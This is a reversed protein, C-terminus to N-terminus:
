EDNEEINIRYSERETAADWVKELLPIIDEDGGGGDALIWDMRVDDELIRRITDYRVPNVARKEDEIKKKKAQEQALEEMFEQHELKHVLEMDQPTIHSGEKSAREVIENFAKTSPKVNEKKEEM